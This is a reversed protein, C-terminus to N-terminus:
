FNAMERVSVYSNGQTVIDEVSVVPAPLTRNAEAIKFALEDANLGPAAIERSVIGGSAFYNPASGAGSPFANNFAMFHRAANRNMVGILEGQEAEFATGDEGTFMTGGASHRNGGINFLAGKEAKPAKAEKTSIIKKVNALGSAVAGAAAISARIASSPEGAILQSTFAKQAGLYTDITTQAIAMAKGAKSEKGLLNSMEGFMKSQQSLKFEFAEKDIKKQNDTKERELNSYLIDYEEKTILEDELRADLEAKENEFRQQEILKKEEYETLDQALALEHKKARESAAKNREEEKHKKEAEELAKDADKIEQNFTDNIQKKDSLYKYDEVTLQQNNKIKEDIIQQNIGTETDLIKLKENKIKELRQKEENVLEQTLTKASEILSPNNEIFYNLKAKAYNATAETQKKFLNNQINLLETDYQTQSIKKAALQKKLIDISKNAITQEYKLQEDLSRAKGNEQAIYLDLGEKQKTIADDLAKQRKQRRENQFNSELKILNDNHKEVSKIEENNLNLKEKYANQLAEVEEKSLKKLLGTKDKYADGLTLFDQIEQETIGKHQLAKKIADNYVSENEKKRSNLYDTEIKAAKELAEIREQESLSQDQSKQIMEDVLNKMAEAQQKKIEKEEGSIRMKEVKAKELADLEEKSIDETQLLAQVKAKDGEELIKIEEATLNKSQALKQLEINYAKDAIAKREDYNKKQIATAEGIAKAREEESLSHDQSKEILEDIQQKAKENASEQLAMQTVLEQEAEKLKIAEDASGSMAGLLDTLGGVVWTIGEALLKLPMTALEIVPALGAMAKEVANTLPTFKMLQQIIPALIQLLFGIPNASIAAGMGKIGATMGSLANKVLSGVGGAEQARSLFEGFGGNFINIQAFSDKLQKKYNDFTTIVGEQVKKNEALWKSNAQIKSNILELEKLYEENNVNLNKRLEILEENNKIYDNETSKTKSLAAQLSQQQEISAKSQKSTEETTKQLNIIIRQQATTYKSQQAILNQTVNIQLNIASKQAEYAATAKKLEAEIQSHESSFEKGTRKCTEIAKNLNEIVKESEQVAKILSKVDLDLEALVIKEKAM